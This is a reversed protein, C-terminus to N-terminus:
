DGSGMNLVEKVKEMAKQIKGSLGSQDMYDIAMNTNRIFDSTDTVPIEARASMDLIETEDSFIFRIPFVVDYSVEVTFTYYLIYNNFKASTSKVRPEMGPFFTLGTINEALRESIKSEVEKNGGVFYRYPDRDPNGTPVAGQSYIYDLFPDACEAAGQIAYVSVINDIKARQYYANGMYILFFLVFFMVPFVVTAEIITMAGSDKKLFKKLM